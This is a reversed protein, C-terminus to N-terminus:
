PTKGDEPKRDFRWSWYIFVGVGVVIYIDAVNFVPYDWTGFRFHLFDRVQFPPRIRDLLNGLAGSLVLGLGLDFARRGGRVEAWKERYLIILTAIAANLVVLIAPLARGLGAFMSWAMGPNLRPTIFFFGPIVAPGPGLTEPMGLLWFVLIKTLQDLAVAAGLLGWFWGAPTKPEVTGEQRKPAV